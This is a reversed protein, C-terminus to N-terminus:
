VLFLRPRPLLSLTLGVIVFSQKAQRWQLTATRGVTPFDAIVATKTVGTVFSSGGSQITSFQRTESAEGDAYISISHNGSPLDNYNYLLSYGTNSRGCIGATDGRSTGGGAKGLDMGDIKVEIKTATCNWGSIVGIGSETNGAVPNELSGQAFALPTAVTLAVSFILKNM